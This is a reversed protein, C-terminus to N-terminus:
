TVIVSDPISTAKTIDKDYFHTKGAYRWYFCNNFGAPSREVMGVAQKSSPEAALFETRSGVHDRANNRLLSSAQAKVADRIQVKAQEQNRGKTKMYVKIADGQSKINRWDAGKALGDTVPQFQGRSLIIDKVTKGYPQGPTNYRNYIAQAVDAMAQKAGSHDKTEFTECAMITILTWYDQNGGSVTDGQAALNKRYQANLADLSKKNEVAHWYKEGAKAQYQWTINGASDTGARRYVWDPKDALLYTKFEQQENVHQWEPYTKIWKM